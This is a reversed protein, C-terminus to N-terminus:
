YEDVEMDDGLEESLLFSSFDDPYADKQGFLSLLVPLLVMGHFFGALVIGIYMRFFYVRFLMSPAFALVGIGCFKTLTIGSIISAGVSTLAHKTHDNATTGLRHDQSFTFQHAMHVCFEVGLGVCALLNVVSVANISTSISSFRNWIFIFGLQSLTMSLVCITVLISLRANRHMLWYISFFVVALALLISQLAVGQIYTYQEYYVFFLTYPFVPLKHKWSNTVKHLYYYSNIFMSQNKLANIQFRMRSGEIGVPTENSLKFVIDDEFQAGCLGFQQCCKSEISIRTFNQVLPYFESDPTTGSSPNSGNRLEYAFPDLPQIPCDCLEEDIKEQLFYRLQRWQNFTNLWSYIPLQIYQHVSSFQDLLQNLQMQVEGDTYKIEEGIVLYAPPGAEGLRTQAQFYEHLYFDTPVALEQELGLPIRTFGLCSVWVLFMGSLLVMLKVPRRMIFPMYTKEVFAKIKGQGHAASSAIAVPSSLKEGLMASKDPSLCVSQRLWPFLDYRRARVRKADLTLAAAFWTIQLVFDVMVAVAAVICFTELAPIKTLAGVLFALCESVAAVAISPGVNSLTEGTVRELMVDDEHRSRVRMSFYSTTATNSSTHGRLEKLRDFENTLIFMNDVGIALILFPVVELTIMTVEMQFLSCCVGLSIGLSLLVILIGTLGLGFRSHIPDNFKGLAMSVYLFMVAYSIIVIFANQSTQVKLSDSISREAMFTLKMGNFKATANHLEAQHRSAIDIFAQREWEEVLETYTANSPDNKLLFTVMLAKARPTVEGCPDPNLHCSDNALGGFVVGRMVPIGNQDMCPSYEKLDPQTTQCATTLKINPDTELLTLNSRWYQFPSTVLCGKEKIPRYCFEELGVERHHPHKTQVVFQSIEDQIEAMKRLYKLEILDKATTSCNGDAGGPLANELKSAEDSDVYFILQQVRFFPHFLDNFRSQEHAAVSTSPVWLKQPDNQVRMQVLGLCLVASVVMAAFSTRFPYRSAYKGILYFWAM